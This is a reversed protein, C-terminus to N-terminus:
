LIIEMQDEEPYEVVTCDNAYVREPLVILIHVVDEKIPLPALHWVGTNLKVVTGKPVIFAETLEPVPEKTPPAVHIVVDGDLPLIGEGTYNHFEAADVILKEPKEMKLSSFTVPVQGSVPLAVKDNYFAGLSCGEPNVLDYFSGYKSFAEATLKQAKIQRM